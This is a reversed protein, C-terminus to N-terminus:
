NHLLTDKYTFAIVKNNCIRIPLFTNNHFFIMSFQFFSLYYHCCHDAASSVVQCFNFFEYNHINNQMFVDRDLKNTNNNRKDEYKNKTKNLNHLRAKKEQGEKRVVWTNFKKASIDNSQIRNNRNSHGLEVLYLPIINLAMGIIDEFNYYFLCKLTLVQCIKQSGKSKDRIYGYGISNVRWGTKEIIDQWKKCM